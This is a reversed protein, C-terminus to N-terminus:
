YVSVILGNQVWFGRWQGTYGKQGKVRIDGDLIDLAINETANKAQVRLGINTGGYNQINHKIFGMAGDSGTGASQTIGFGAEKVSDTNAGNTRFMVMEPTIMAFSSWPAWSNDPQGTSSAILSSGQINFQGIRGSNANIIGTIEADSAFMKGNDLVRFPAADKNAYNAGVGIRISLAGNDTVGSLFANQQMQTSGVSMINSMILGGQISTFNDTKTKVDNLSTQINEVASYIDKEADTLDFVSAYCLYWELHKNAGNIAFFNTSSFAGSTGCRVLYIYEEWKGTGKNSTIWQSSGGDGIPNSHFSIEYGVEIKAILRTVFIAGSRTPTAFTFGGLYPTVNGDGNYQIVAISNSNTPAGYRDGYYLFLKVSASGSNNYVSIGNTTGKSFVTDRYLCKGSAYSAALVKNKVDETLGNVQNQLGNAANIASNASNQANNASNQANNASTQANNASSQANNASNQANQANQNVADINKNVDEPAPTWATAKNGEELKFNRFATSFNAAGINIMTIVWYDPYAAKFTYSGRFWDGGMPEGIQPSAFEKMQTWGIGIRFPTSGFVEVSLTYEKGPTIIGSSIGFYGSGNQATSIMLFGNQFNQFVSGNDSGFRIPSRGYPNDSLEVLNRGGIKINNLASSLDPTTVGGGGIVIAQANILTTKIYGGEIITDDLMAKDVANKWALVGLNAISNNAQNASNQANNIDAQIDEPALTWDTAKSGEELKFNRYKIKTGVPADIGDLGILSTNTGIVKDYTVFVKVWTGSPIYSVDKRLLSQEYAFHVGVGFNIQHDVYLELSMTLQKDVKDYGPPLTLWSYCNWKGSRLITIEGPVSNDSNQHDNGSMIINAARQLLNRGGIQLNNVLGSAYAKAADTISKYLDNRVDLYNYFNNNFERGDVNTSVSMDIFVGSNTLYNALAVYYNNYNDTNINYTAAQANLRTRESEIGKWRQLLDPKEQSTVINDNAIDALIKKAAIAEQNATNAAIQAAQANQNATTIEKEIDEPAPTWATAKNGEEIKINRILYYAWEFQSFDVFNYVDASYNTVNVTLSYKKWSNDSTSSFHQLGIDCIDVAVGVVVSQTGRMEFSVTWEGNGSIVGWLRINNADPNNRGVAYFGNPTDVHERQFDVNLTDILTSKKYTNRGGINLNNIADKTNQNATNFLNDVYNQAQSGPAFRVRANIEIRDQLLDIWNSGDASSIRGTTIEGPAVSTYGANVKARRFGEVISSVSGILFYYFVPDSDLLLKVETAMLAANNGKKDAKVYLYNFNTSLGYQTNAAIQWTRPAKPDVTLHVLQGATNKLSTNDAGVTIVVDPLSFQQSRTGVMLMGTEISEPKIKIPDLYGSNDFYKDFEERAMAYSRRALQANYKQEKIIATQQKEKEIYARVISIIAADEGIEFAVKYPNQLDKSISLIRLNADLGLDADTFHITKGLAINANIEKFYFPDSVVTYQLREKCNKDLYEQAKLKLEAEANTVYSAPMVIDTIIYQDGVKPRMLNSPVEIAKEDKNKNLTFTKTATHYGNEKIELIYGALQGTQFTVKAPIGQILITTGNGDRENLDFDMTSDTFVLPNNADVATVTGIRKPFVEDFKKTHEIVNYIDTNKELYPVDMKLRKSGNRYKAGINKESGLAYLRTVINSGDMPNRTISKLGKNKGYQFSYGSDSKREVIHISKDADIWYEVEFAEAIKALASLCNDESFDVQKAETEIVTGKTWGSQLRNANNLVHGILLDANGIPNGESVTLNNGADPFLLQIKSLEYIISGFQLSYKFHRTNVKEVVPAQLLYYNVGYVNVSDGIQFKVMTSLEFTMNVLEEGMIKTSINGQPVVQAITSNNRKITYKM